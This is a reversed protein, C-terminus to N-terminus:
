EQEGGYYNAYLQKWNGKVGLKALYEAQQQVLGDPADVQNKKCVAV